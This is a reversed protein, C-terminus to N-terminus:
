ALAQREAPAPSSAASRQRDPACPTSQVAIERQSWFLSSRPKSSKTLGSCYSLMATSFCFNAYSFRRTKRPLVLNQSLPGVGDLARMKTYQEDRQQDALSRAVARSTILAIQGLSGLDATEQQSHKPIYSGQEGWPQVEASSCRM